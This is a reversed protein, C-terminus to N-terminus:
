PAGAGGTPPGAGPASAGGSGRDQGGNRGSGTGSSSGGGGSVAGGGTGVMTPVGPAAGETGCLASSSPRRLGVDAFFRALGDYTSACWTDTCLARSM